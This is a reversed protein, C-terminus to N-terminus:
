PLLMVLLVVSGVYFLAIRWMVSNIARPLVEKANEAEGAATGILEIGAYAFM